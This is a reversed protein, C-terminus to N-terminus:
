LAPKESWKYNQAYREVRRVASSVSHVEICISWCIHARSSTSSLPEIVRSALWCVGTTQAKEMSIWDKPDLEAIFSTGCSIDAAECVLSVIFHADLSHDVVDLFNLMDQNLCEISSASSSFADRVSCLKSWRKSRMKAVPMVCTTWCSVGWISKVKVSIASSASHHTRSQLWPHIDAGWLTPLEGSWLM